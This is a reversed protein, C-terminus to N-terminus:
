YEPKHKTIFLLYIFLYNLFLREKITQIVIVTILTYIGLTSRNRVIIVHKSASFCFCIYIYTFIHLNIYIYTFM